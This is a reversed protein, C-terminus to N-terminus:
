NNLEILIVIKQAKSGYSCLFFFSNFGGFTLRTGVDQEYVVVLSYYGIKGNCCKNLLGQPVLDSLSSGSSCTLLSFTFTHPKPAHARPGLM